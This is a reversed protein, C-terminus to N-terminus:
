KNDAYFGWNDIVRIYIKVTANQAYHHYLIHPSSTAPHNDQNTISQIYGDGWHIKIDTLPQQESNVQSNFQLRYWGRVVKIPTASIFNQALIKNNKAYNDYYLKINSLTPYVACFANVNSRLNGPCQPIITGSNSINSFNYSAKSIYKGGKYQLIQGSLFINKLITEYPSSTADSTNILPQGNWLPTCTANQGCTNNGLKFTTSASDTFSSNVTTLCYIDPNNSCSGILDCSDKTGIASGDRCGYPRGAVKKIGQQQSSNNLLPIRGGGLLNSIPTAAGFPISSRDQTYRNLRSVYPSFFQPTSNSAGQNVRQVWAQNLGNNDVAQVFTNCTLNFVNDSTSTAYPYKLGSVTAPPNNYDYVALPPNMNTSEPGQFGNFIGYGNTYNRNNNITGDGNNTAACAGWPEDTNNTNTFVLDTQFASFLSNKKPVCIVRIKNKKNNILKEAITGGEHNFAVTTIYDEPCQNQCTPYSDCTSRSASYYTHGCVTYNNSSASSAVYADRKELLAFNGSAEACYNLPFKGAYGLSSLNPTPINDLPYWLLCVPPNAPDHELCYGELGPKIINTNKSICTLSSGTPYLRCEPAVYKNPAVQLVPSININDFYVPGVSSKPIDAGAFIEIKNVGALSFKHVEQTWGLGAPSYFVTKQGTQSDTLTQEQAGAIRLQARAGVLKSTNVLYSIYYDQPRNSSLSDPKSHWYKNGPIALYARGQAPYTTGIKLNAADPSNILCINGNSQQSCAAITSNEFDYHAQSVPEGVIKMQSLNYDNFISYGTANSNTITSAVSTNQSSIFNACGNKSNLSNCEGFSYCTKKHTVPDQVYSTCALWQSCVRSPNVKIVQNANCSGDSSCTSPSYPNPSYSNGEYANFGLPALGSAGAVSRENFLICGNNFQVQGNCSTKDINSQLQYNVALEKLNITRQSSGGSLLANHNIGADFIIPTHTASALSLIDTSSAFNNNNLLQRVPYQFQLNVGTGLGSSVDLSYLKYPELSVIQQTATLTSPWSGISNAGWSDTFNSNSIFSPNAVLNPNFRTVPDIYETCSSASASCLGVATSPVKVQNGQGGLGITKFLSTPCYYDNNDIICKKTGCDSNNLCVAGTKETGSIKNDGNLDCRKVPIKYWSKKLINPDHSARYVCVNNGPNKFYSVSNDTTSKWAECGVNASSCLSQNYSDPNNLAFVDSWSTLNKGGQGQGLLSCGQSTVSCQKTPDYIANLAQDGPVFVCDPNSTNCTSTAVGNLWYGAASSSYNNTDILQECGVASASCLNSFQHINNISGNSSTYQACALNYDPGQYNGLTDYYCANPVQSSGQILYYREAIESLLFNDLYFNGNAQIILRENASVPQNLNALNTQYIHWSSGGTITLSNFATSTAGTNPNLFYINLNTDHPALALFKLTYASGQQPSSNLNLQAQVNSCAQSNYALSHGNKNNALSSISLGTGNTCSSSWAGLSNEFDSSYILRVNSGTNGNYERCSNQSATCTQGQGPIAQYVCAQSTKDWVGGNLCVDCSNTTSDWNKNSGTCDNKTLSADINQGTMRYAHCDSSCTITHSVLHYSVQGSVNYFQQCDSNYAPDSIPLNYIKANCLSSDPSTLAPGGAGNNKLSYSQLQYGGAQGQWSYFNSCQSPNPKICQKLSSYYEKNEGGQALADLNTFQTCGVAAASCTTATKPIINEKTPSRFYTGQAIYMDYGLCQAPCYDASTTKAAVSFPSHVNAFSQCGVEAQNCQRAYSSCIAPADAKPTYDKNPGQANTYCIKALYKPLIKEYIKSSATPTQGYPSYATEQNGLEFKLNKVYILSANTSNQAIVSFIPDNYSTNAPRTITLHQWAGTSNTSQRYSSRSGITLIVTTGAQAGGTLYVDASLTYAKSPIIQFDAPLLSHIFSSYLGGSLGKPINLRLAKGSLGGPDQQANVITAQSVNLLPWSNLTIGSSSDGIQDQSFNSNMILNTGPEAQFRLLATCGNDSTSCTQLNNNLYLNPFRNWNVIGTSTAYSGATAYQRCGVNASNCSGYNLTNQLYSVTQGDINTFAQCTNDIAPCSNTNFNWTRKEGTCYGYALCSGDSKTKICTQNDACYNDARTISLKSPIISNSNNTDSGLVPTGSLITKNLIQAGYGEKQCYNLPASLVWNPDVLGECWTTNTTDFGSSFKTYNDHPNFCSILDGLTANHPNTPNTALTAAEVWGIPIIRYKLLILLNRLSYSTTYASGSTGNTIQWDPHLYGKQIAQAVTEKATVAQMFQNDIVCHNPAPNKPNLCITLASLISYDVQTGFTPKLLTSTIKKLSVSGSGSSFDNYYAGPGSLNASSNNRNGLNKLLRNFLTMALRNLGINAADVLVNTTIKGFNQNKVAQAEQLRRKATGPPAAIEGNIKTFNLWGKNALLGTKAVAKKNLVKNSLDTRATLYIGLDNANPNFLGVFTPLFNPKQLDALQTKINSKWDKVMKSASCSPAQPQKENILGLGIKVKAQLSSAGCVNFSPTANMTNATNELNKKGNQVNQSICVTNKNKCGSYCTNTISMNMAIPLKSSVSASTCNSNCKQLQASCDQDPNSPNNMNNVFSEIFQGGAQDGVQVLYKGWNQTIFLPKQGAGGSGVYNAADYAIKNLALSLAQHYAIAGANKWLKTGLTAVKDGVWKATNVIVVGPSVAYVAKPPVAVFVIFFLSLIVLLNKFKFSNPSKNELPKKRLKSNTFFKM